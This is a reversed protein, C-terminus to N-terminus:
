HRSFVEGGIALGTCADEVDQALKAAGGLLKAHILNRVGGCAHACICSDLVSVHKM